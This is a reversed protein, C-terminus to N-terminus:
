CWNSCRAACASCGPATPTSTSATRPGDATPAVEVSCLRCAGFPQLAPEHCLVPIADRGRHRAVFDYVTEGDRLACEVGDIWATGSM